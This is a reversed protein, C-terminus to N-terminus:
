RSLVLGCDMCAVEHVTGHLELVNRSGARQHLRDVNQTIVSRVCGAAELAAVLLHAGNPEAASLRRYGLSSRAWYRRRVSEKRFFDANQLPKYAPRNPSRYDPIGSATSIGAGSLVM